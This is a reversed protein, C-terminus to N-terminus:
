KSAPSQKKQLWAAFAVLFAFYALAESRTIFTGTQDKLQARFENVSAFRENSARESKEVAKEAAQLAVKAKEEQSMIAERMWREQALFRAEVMAKYDESPDAAACQLAALSVIAVHAIKRM